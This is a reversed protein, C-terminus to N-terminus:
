YVSLSVFLRCSHKRPEVNNEKKKEEEEEEVEEAVAKNSRELHQMM